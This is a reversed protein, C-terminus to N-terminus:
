PPPAEDEDIAQLMEMLRFAELLHSMTLPPIHDVIDEVKTADELKDIFVTSKYLAKMRLASARRVAEAVDSGSCTTKLKKAITGMDIYSLTHSNKHLTLKLIEQLEDVNPYGIEYACPLRRRIAPDLNTYTNTCGIVIVSDSVSTGIGDIHTLLETKFSYVCSQDSDSRKRIMGDIEDFFIICPQIRRALSFTAALLKSSEGFYKNELDALTLSIFPVNAEAAIARALMTKGTGPPGYLLIGRSPSLIREESFFIHPYKLPLLVHTSINCKIERLGGVTDLRDTIKEPKIINQSIQSEYSNLGVISSGNNIYATVTAIINRILLWVIATFLTGFLTMATQRLKNMHHKFAVM